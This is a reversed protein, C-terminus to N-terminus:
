QDLTCDICPSFVGRDGKLSKTNGKGQNHSHHELRTQFEVHIPAGEGDLALSM